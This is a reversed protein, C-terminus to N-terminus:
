RGAGGTLPQCFTLPPGICPMPFAPIAKKVVLKSSFMGRPYSMGSEMTKLLTVEEGISAGGEPVELESGLGAVLAESGGIGSECPDVLTLLEGFGSLGVTTGDVEETVSALVGDTLMDLGDVMELLEILESGIEAGIIEVDGNDITVVGQSEGREECNPLMWGWDCDLLVGSGEDEVTDTNEVEEDTGM